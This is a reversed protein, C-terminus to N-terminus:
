CCCPRTTIVVEGQFNKFFDADESSLQYSQFHVEVSEWAGLSILKNDHGGSWGYTWKGDFVKSLVKAHSEFKAKNELVPEKITLV